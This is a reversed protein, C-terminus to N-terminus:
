AKFRVLQQQIRDVVEVANDKSFCLPPKSKIVNNYPGDTSVLIYKERLQNKLLQALATDPELTGEKVIDVGIFLGSGRVDGICPYQPQLGRLLTMYYNGVELANQPLGEEELVELVALGIACSVPNGGFSSFFEVGQEFSQAIAPTTVVAGIPHGNGMPKGLVVIDPVVNQQEFGWFSDGLRGFGTQVEDSICVGGQSRIFAYMPKLYGKALPVQGGCGVVPETIFAAIRTASNKLKQIAENAYNKGASGDNNTYAGRFTDPLATTYIHSAQGQGKPHNFKYNSIDIGIQTNGHYGHEMVLLHQLGTHAKALRIALDSAASGSNVFFVKNLPKPFKSLLREAYDPLLDYLYRTNTNLKALQNTGAAIVRPHQHGVHPINNYADLFSHGHRDFMYQFAAREMAIPQQYSISLIKSLYTTRKNLVNSLPPYEALPLGLANRFCNEAKQPGIRLWQELLKWAKGESVSAYQNEPDVVKAYASNCVSTCLRMAILWYLLAIEKEELPLIAHYSQLLPAAYELPHKSAYFVYTAAIALENILQTQSCDGFDIIGCVADNEVLINWENFDGHICSKRLKPLEPLVFQEYQQFFYHVLNRRRASPIHISYAKNHHVNQLDWRSVRARLAVHDFHLLAKDLHAAFGGLSAVLASNLAIDGMFIGSVFSLLRCLRPVGEVELVKLFSGDVFPLPQPIAAKQHLKLYLLLENEAAVVEQLRQSELYTKLIFKGKESAVSYNKNAYGNLLKFSAEQLGFEKELVTAITM